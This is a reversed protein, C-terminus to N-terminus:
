STGAPGTGLGSISVGAIKGTLANMLNPTRNVAFQDADVKTTAYGLGKTSKEIGLATVVVEELSQVSPKLSVNITTRSGVTEEVTAYGIFTFVLVSNEDPVNLSFQGNSDTSTGQSTGKIVINVGPFASGNEDTVRGSVLVELAPAPAIMQSTTAAPLEKVATFFETPIELIAARSPRKAPADPKLHKLSIVYFGSGAKEYSVNTKALLKDLAEEITEYNASSKPVTINEVWEDKYAISVDFQKEVESLSTKLSCSEEHSLGPANQKKDSSAYLSGYQPLVQHTILFCMGLVLYIKRM